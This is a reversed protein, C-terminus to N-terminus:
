DKKADITTIVVVISKDWKHKNLCENKYHKKKHCEFCEIRSLYNADNIEYVQKRSTSLDKSIYLKESKIFKDIKNLRCAQYSKGLSASSDKTVQQDDFSSLDVERIRNLTQEQMIIMTLLEDCTNSVNNIDLIKVKLNSKFKILFMYIRHKELLSSLYTKLKNLYEKFAIIKQNSKQRANKWREYALLRCNAPNAVLNM